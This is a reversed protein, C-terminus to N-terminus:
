LKRRLDLCPRVSARAARIEKQSDGFGVGIYHDVEGRGISDLYARCMRSPAAVAENVKQNRALDYAVISSLGFEFGDFFVSASGGPIVPSKDPFYANIIDDWIEQRNAILEGAKKKDDQALTVAQGSLLMRPLGSGIQTELIKQSRYVPGNSSIFTLDGNVRYAGKTESFPVFWDAGFEKAKRNSQLGMQRAGSDMTAYAEDALNYLSWNMEQSSEPGSFFKAPLWNSPKPELFKDRLFHDMEHLVTAFLDFPRLYPDVYITSTACDYGGITSYDDTGPIQDLWKGALKGRLSKTLFRFKGLDMLEAALQAVDDVSSTGGNGTWQSIQETSAYGPALAMVRLASEFCPAGEGLQGFIIQQLDSFTKEARGSRSNAVAVVYAKSLDHVKQVVEQCEAPVTVGDFETAARAVSGGLLGLTIPLALLLRVFSKM